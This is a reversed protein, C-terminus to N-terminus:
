AKGRLKDLSLAGGGRCAIYFFLLCYVLALEGKNFNPIFNVGLQVKWHFQTYAVAMTGSAIFAACRTWMGAAILAGTVLEIVGGFWGQSWLAPLDRGAPYQWGTLKQLGHVAFMLGTAIRLLIFAPEKFKDLFRM